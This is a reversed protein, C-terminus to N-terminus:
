LLNSAVRRGVGHDLILLVEHTVALRFRAFLFRAFLLPSGAVEAHDPRRSFPKLASANKSLLERSQPQTQEGSAKGLLL